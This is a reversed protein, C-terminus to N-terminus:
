NISMWGDIWSNDQTQDKEQTLFSENAPFGPPPPNIDFDGGEDDSTVEEKKAGMGNQVLEIESDPKEPLREKELLSKYRDFPILIMKSINAKM